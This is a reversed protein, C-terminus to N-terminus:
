GSRSYAKVMAAVLPFLIEHHGTFAYSKGGGTATPRILVNTNPRYHQIIDFNAASFNKVENGLNRAVTLGKLFVEPMVVASGLNVVLGGSLRSVLHAFIKFDTYSAAGWAKGDCSPHQHVIDTGIAIHATFPIGKKRCALILSLEGYQPSVAELREGLAEGLGLDREFAFNAAENIFQGTEQCMGFSGDMLGAEVDESTRGFLAMEVDHIAVAGNGALGSILGKEILDIFLPSLGVKIPHAGMMLIIKRGAKCAVAWDQAFARLEEAKLTAPLSNLFEIFNEAPNFV